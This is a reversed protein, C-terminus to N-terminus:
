PAGPVLLRDSTSPFGSTKVFEHRDGNWVQTQFSGRQKRPSLLPYEHDEDRWPRRSSGGPTTVRSSPSSSSIFLRSVSSSWLLLFKDLFSSTIDDVAAVQHTINSTNHHNRQHFGPTTSNSKPEMTAAGRITSTGSSSSTEDIAATTSNIHEHEHNNELEHGHDPTPVIDPGAFVMAMALGGILVFFVVLLRRWFRLPVTRIRSRQRLITSTCPKGNSRRQGRCSGGERKFKLEFEQGHLVAIDFHDTPRSIRNTAAPPPPPVPTSPPGHYSVSESKHSRDGVLVSLRSSTSCSFSALGGIVERRGKESSCTMSRARGYENSTTISKQMRKAGFLKRICRRKKM